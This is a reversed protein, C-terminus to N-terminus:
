YGYTQGFVILFKPLLCSTYFNSNPILFNAALIFLFFGQRLSLSPTDPTKPSRRWYFLTTGSAHICVTCAHLYISPSFTVGVESLFAGGWGFLCFVLPNGLFFSAGIFVIQSIRYPVLFGLLLQYFCHSFFYPLSTLPSVNEYSHSNPM